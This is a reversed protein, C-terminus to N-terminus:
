AGALAGRCGDTIDAFQKRVRATQQRVSDGEFLGGFASVYASACDSVVTSKSKERGNRSRVFSSHCGLVLGVRAPSQSLRRGSEFSSGKM